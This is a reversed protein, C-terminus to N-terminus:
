KIFRMNGFDPIPIHLGAVDLTHPAPFYVFFAKGLLLKRNVVGKKDDIQVGVNPDITEWLRGDASSPSNDGLMFFEDSDLTVLNQPHTGFAPGGEGSFRPYNRPQYYLDRDLGVRSLTAPSNEFTWEVLTPEANKYSNPHGLNNNGKFYEVDLGTSYLIRMNPDWDYFGEVIKKGDIWVQLSQDVHCFEITRPTGAKFPKISKLAPPAKTSDLEQWPGNGDRMRVVVADNSIEAQYEHERARIVAVLRLDDNDPTVIARMRLDAIPFQLQQGGQLRLSTTTRVDNYPEWDTLPWHELDWRLRTPDATDTRYIRLDKTSWNRGSWPGAPNLPKLPAYESSYITRWVSRQVRPPKRQVQWTGIDPSGDAGVTYSRAFVDGDVIWIQENPLGILRKIFNITADEPNKFVVVDYRHPPFIEYLYKHVLIRDGPLIRKPTAVPEFGQDYHLADQLTRSRRAADPDFQVCSVTM